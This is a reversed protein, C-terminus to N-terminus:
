LANDDVKESSVVPIGFADLCKTSPISVWSLRRHMIM